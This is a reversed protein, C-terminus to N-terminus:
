GGDNAIEEVIQQRRKKKFINLDLKIMPSKFSPLEKEDAQRAIKTLRSFRNTQMQITYQMRHRVKLEAFRIFDHINFKSIEFDEDEKRDESDNLQYSIM